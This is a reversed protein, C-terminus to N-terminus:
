YFTLIFFLWLSYIFFRGIIVLDDDVIMLKTHVYIQETQLSERLEGHTRLCGFFLYDSVRDGMVAQLKSLMSTPGRSMTQFQWKLIFRIASDTLSGEPHVPLIIIVRFVEKAEYALLIRNVISHAIKNKIGSKALSSIFYQNEIYIFHKANRIASIMALLISREERHASSWKCLSRLIQVEMTGGTPGPMSGLSIESFKKERHHNWRQVFNKAVDWAANGDVEIMVDQWPMRCKDRRDFSDVYPSKPNGPAHRPNYYDKGPWTLRLFTDDCLRYQPDDFRGFCFDLGGLFAISEDIVLLKQHHTWNIPFSPPHAIASINPHLSRFYSVCEESGLDIAIKTNKWVLIYIKVDEVAKTLLLTELQSKSLDERNTDEERVLYIEPSLWWDSIYICRSANKIMEAARRYYERGCIYSKVNIGSRPPAFSGFPNLKSLQDAFDFIRQWRHFSEEDVARILITETGRVFTWTMNADDAQRLSYLTIPIDIVDDLEMASDVCKLNGSVWECKRRIFTKREFDFMELEGEYVWAGVKSLIKEVNDCVFDFCGFQHSLSVAASSPTISHSLSLFEDLSLLYLGKSFSVDKKAVTELDNRHRSILHRLLSSTVVFLNKAEDVSQSPFRGYPPFLDTDCLIRSIKREISIELSAIDPSSPPSSSIPVDDSTCSKLFEDFLDTVGMPHHLHHHHRLCSLACCTRFLRLVALTLFVVTGVIWEAENMFLSLDKPYQLLQRWSVADCGISRVRLIRWANRSLRQFLTHCLTENIEPSHVRPGWSRSYRIIVENVDHLTQIRQTESPLSDSGPDTDLSLSASETQTDSSAASSQPQRPSPSLCRSRRKPSVHSRASHPSPTPSSLPSSPPSSVPSSHSLTPFSPSSPSSPPLRPSLSPSLPPSLPSTVTNMSKDPLSRRRLKGKRLVNQVGGYTKRLFSGGATFPM